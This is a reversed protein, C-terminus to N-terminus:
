GDVVVDIRDVCAQRRDWNPASFWPGDRAAVASLEAVIFCRWGETSGPAIPGSTSMGAFQYGLCHAEGNKTGLVHPCFERPLGRYVAVVQRRKVIAERLVDYPRM